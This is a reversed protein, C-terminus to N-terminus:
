ELISDWDGECISTRFFLATLVSNGSSYETGELIPNIFPWPHVDMDDSVTFNALKVEVAEASGDVKGIQINQFLALM